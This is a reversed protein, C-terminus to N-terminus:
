NLKFKEVESRLSNLLYKSCLKRRSVDGDFYLFIKELLESMEKTFPVTIEKVHKNGVVSTSIDEARSVIADGKETISPIVRNKKFSSM